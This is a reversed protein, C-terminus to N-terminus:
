QLVSRNYLQSKQRGPMYELIKTWPIISGIRFKEVNEILREDEEPTWSVNKEVHKDAFITQYHIFCQYPSRNEVEKAIETWNQADFNKAADLLKDEEDTTWAKRNLTPM